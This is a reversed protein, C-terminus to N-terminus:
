NARLRVTHVNHGAIGPQTGAESGINGSHVRFRGHGFYNCYIFAHLHVEQCAVFVRMLPIFRERERERKNTPSVM